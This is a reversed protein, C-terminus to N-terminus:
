MRPRKPAYKNSMSSMNKMYSGPNGYGKSQKQQEKEQKERQKEEEKHLDNIIKIYEEFIFFPWNDMDQESFGPYNKAIQVKNKLLSTLPM